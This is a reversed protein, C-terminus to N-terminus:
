RRLKYIRERRVVSFPTRVEPSLRGVRAIELANQAGKSLNDLLGAFLGKREPEYEM